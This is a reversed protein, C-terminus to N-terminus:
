EGPGALLIEIDELDLEDPENDAEAEIESFHIYPDDEPTFRDAEDLIAWGRREAQNM